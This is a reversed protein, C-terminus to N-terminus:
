ELGSLFEMVDVGDAYDWLDPEQAKGFPFSHPLLGPSSVICQIKDRDMELLSGVEKLDRYYSFYVVAPPSAYADEEKLLLFGNDLHKECNVLFISKYYDYNNRYKHHQGTEAFSELAEFLNNFDYNEPIYLKSISRCGMGYYLFIDKGLAQLEAQNEKGTLVAVGNRNKRIIHPYKGFYYEFYRSTNNSGTAIIADFDHLKEEPFEIFDKLSPEIEVLINSVAPLLKDDNRSLKAQVKHGATLVCLFDHFGVLPINGAMVLGVTKPRFTKKLINEYANTWRYLKEPTLSNGISLMANRVNEPDFWPNHYQMNEIWHRLEPHKEPSRLISGLKSFAEIKKELSVPM